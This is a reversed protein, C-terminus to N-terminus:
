TGIWGKINEAILALFSAPIKPLQRHASPPHPLSTPVFFYLLFPKKKKVLVWCDHSAETTIDWWQSAQCEFVITRAEPSHPPYQGAKINLIPLFRPPLALSDSYRPAPIARAMSSVGGVWLQVRAGSFVSFLTYSWVSPGAPCILDLSTSPKPLSVMVGTLVRPLIKSGNM